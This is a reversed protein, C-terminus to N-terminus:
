RRVCASGPCGAREPARSPPQRPRSGCRGPRAPWRPSGPRAFGPGEKDGVGAPAAVLYREASPYGEGRRRVWLRPIGDHSSWEWGLGKEEARAAAATLATRVEFRSGQGVARLSRVAPGKFKLSCKRHGAVQPVTGAGRLDDSLAWPGRRHLVRPARSDDLGALGDSETPGGQAVQAFRVGNAALLPLVHRTVLDATGPWENGTIATVM